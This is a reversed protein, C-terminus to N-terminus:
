RRLDVDRVTPLPSGPEPALGGSDTCFPLKFRKLTHNGAGNDDIAYARNVTLNNSAQFDFYPDFVTDGAGANLTPIVVQQRGEQSGAALDVQQLFGDDRGIFAYSNAPGPLVAALSVWRASLSTQSWLAPGTSTGNDQYARLVGATDLVLIKDKFTGARSEIWPSRNITSGPAVAFSWKIDPGGLGNGDPGYAFMTGAQNAAYLRQGYTANDSLMPRNSLSGANHSWILRKNLNTTIVNIEFLSDQGSTGTTLLSGCFVVPDNPDVQTYDNGATSRPGKEYRIYCGDTFADVKDGTDTGQYVWQIAFTDSWLAYVANHTHDDCGNFTEAFVLDAGGHGQATAFDQFLSGSYANLLVGPTAQVRDGPATNCILNGNTDKRRLDAFQIPTSNNMCPPTCSNQADLKYLRGNSGGLYVVLPHMSDGPVPSPFNDITTGSNEGFVPGPLVWTWVQAGAVGQDEFAYLTTGKAFYTRGCPVGSCSAPRGTPIFGTDTTPSTAAGSGLANTQWAYYATPPACSSTDAGWVRWGILLIGAGLGVVAFSRL